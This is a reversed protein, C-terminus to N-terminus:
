VINYRSAFHEIERELMKRDVDKDFIFGTKGDREVFKTSVGFHEMENEFECLGFSINENKNNVFISFLFNGNSISSYEIVISRESM